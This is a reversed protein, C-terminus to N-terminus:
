NANINFPTRDIANHCKLRSYDPVRPPVLVDLSTIDSSFVLCYIMTICSAYPLHGAQSCGPGGKSDVSLAFRM